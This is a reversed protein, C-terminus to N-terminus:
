ENNKTRLFVNKLLINKTIGEKNRCKKKNTNDRIQKQM